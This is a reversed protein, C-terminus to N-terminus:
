SSASPQASAPTIPAKLEPNLKIATNIEKIGQETRGLRQLLLGLNFHASADNPNAEVAKAYLNVAEQSRGTKDVLIALNYLAPGYKPDLEVTKRFQKEAEADDGAQQAIVGLNYYALKNNPDKAVLAEYTRKAADNNGQAQAKLGADLLQGPNGTPAADPAPKADDGSCGSLLLTLSLAATMSTVAMRSKAPLRHRTM